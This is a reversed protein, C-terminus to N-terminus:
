ARSRRRWWAPLGEKGFLKWAEAGDFGPVPVLNIAMLWLNTGIFTHFAQALYPNAIPALVLHLINDVFDHEGATIFIKTGFVKYTGDTDAIGTVGGGM